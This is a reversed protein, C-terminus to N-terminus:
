NTSKETFGIIKVRHRRRVQLHELQPRSNENPRRHDRNAAANRRELLGDSSNEIPGVGFGGSLKCCSRGTAALGHSKLCAASTKRRSFRPHIPIGTALIDAAPVGWHQLYAAGEETATFYRDCPQNVWLRHTEFDTTVTMQPLDVKGNRASSRHDGGAFFPHQRGPGLTRRSFVDSFPRLNLKELGRAASSRQKRHQVPAQDLLDYFYGLVHPASTSWISISAQGYVRRFRRQDIDLVDINRVDADPAIQRLALEVAEAARVHGAGVSASLVLIRAPM